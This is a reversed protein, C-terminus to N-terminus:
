NNENKNDNDANYYSGFEIENDPKPLIYCNDESVAQYGYPFKTLGIRKSMYFLQGEAAFEKVYEKILEDRIANVDTIDAIIGRHRRVENLYRLAEDPNTEALCEAMIYAMESRRIMPLRRAYASNYGSPQYYKYYFYNKSGSDQQKTIYMVRYDTAGVNNGRGIEFRVQMNYNQQFLQMNSGEALFWTNALTELNNINLSFIHETSFTYDRDKDNTASISATSVWPFICDAIDLVEKAASAATQTDGAWLAVRAQLAKVAYYNIRMQRYGMFPDDINAETDGSRIPDSELCALADAIDQNLLEIVERGTYVHPVEIQLAKVYPIAQQDLDRISAFLRLLDFHAYARLGLAEGKIINYNNGTFVGRQADINDLINNVNAIMNYMKKWINDIQSRVNISTMYKLQQVDNYVPNNYTSYYVGTVADVFGYTLERGYLNEQKMLTYCGILADKFGDETKLLESSKVKTRPQVDLWSECSALIVALFM